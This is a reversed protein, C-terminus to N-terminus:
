AVVPVLKSLARFKGAAQEILRIERDIAQLHDLTVHVNEAQKAAEIISELEDTGHEVIPMVRDGITIDGIVVEAGANFVNGLLAWRSKDLHKVVKIPAKVAQNLAFAVDRFVNGPVRGELLALVSQLNQLHAELEACDTAPLASRRLTAASSELVDAVSSLYESAKAVVEASDSAALDSAGVRPLEQTLLEATDDVARALTVPTTPGPKGAFPNRGIPPKELRADLLERLLEELRVAFAADDTLDIYSRGKLCMPTKASATVSRIVPVFKTTHQDELIEASVIGKEYGVGGIGEDAKANYVDTCIVLVRDAENLSREMFRPLDQGLRVDWRDLVVDVGNDRLAIALKEVWATHADSEHSYSVFVKPTNPPGDTM